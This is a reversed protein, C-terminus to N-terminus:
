RLLICVVYAIPGLGLAMILLAAGLILLGNQRGEVTMTVFAPQSPM